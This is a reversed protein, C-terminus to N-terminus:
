FNERVKGPFADLWRPILLFLHDLQRIGMAYLDLLLTLVCFELNTVADVVLRISPCVCVQKLTYEGAFACSIRIARLYRLLVVNCISVILENLFEFWFLVAHQGSVCVVHECCVRCPCWKAMNGDDSVPPIRANQWQSIQTFGLSKRHNRRLFSTRRDTQWGCHKEVRRINDNPLIKMWFMFERESDWFYWGSARGPKSIM